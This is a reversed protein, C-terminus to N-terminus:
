NFGDHFIFDGREYAGPDVLGNFFRPNGDLDLLPLGGMPTTTGTGLLPSTVDLHFNGNDEDVFQPAVSLECCPPTAVNTLGIDNHALSVHDAAAGDAYLGYTSNNWLINNSVYIAPTNPNFFYEVFVGAYPFAGTATNGTVTNNTIYAPNNGLISVELSGEFSGVSNAYILNNEVRTAGAGGIVASVGGKNGTVVTFRMSAAGLLSGVRLAGSGNGNRVSLYEVTVSGDNGALQLVVSTGGGDLVTLGPNPLQRTCDADYGGRVVLNGDTGAHTADYAFGTGGTAYTGAAIKITNSLHNNQATAFADRLKQPTTVCFPAARAGAACVLLGVACAYATAHARAPM